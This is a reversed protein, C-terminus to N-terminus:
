ITKLLERQARQWAVRSRHVEDRAAQLQVESARRASSAERGELRALLRRTRAYERAAADRRERAALVAAQRQEESQLLERLTM